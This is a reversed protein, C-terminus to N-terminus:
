TSICGSNVRSIVYYCPMHLKLPPVQYKCIAECFVSQRKQSKPWQKLLDSNIQMGLARGCLALGGGGSFFYATEDKIDFHSPVVHGSTM